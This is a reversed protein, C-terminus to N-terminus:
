LSVSLENLSEGLKNLELLNQELLLMMDGRKIKIRSPYPPHGLSLGIFGRLVRLPCIGKSDVVSRINKVAAAHVLNM